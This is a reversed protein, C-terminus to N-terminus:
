RMKRELQTVKNQAYSGIATFNPVGLSPTHCSGVPVASALFTPIHSEELGLTQLLLLGLM